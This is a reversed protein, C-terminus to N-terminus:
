CSQLFCPSVLFFQLGWVRFGLVLRSKLIHAEQLRRLEAKSELVKSIWTGPGFFMHAITKIRTDGKIVLIITRQIIGQIAGKLSNLSHSM